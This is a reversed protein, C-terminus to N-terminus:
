KTRVAPFLGALLHAFPQCALFSQPVNAPRYPVIAAGKSRIMYNGNSILTISVHRVVGGHLSFAATARPCHRPRQGKADTECNLGHRQQGLASAVRAARRTGTESTSRGHWGTAPPAPTERRWYDLRVAWPWRAPLGASPGSVPGPSNTRVMYRTRAAVLGARRISAGWGRGPAVRPRDIRRRDGQSRERSRGLKM